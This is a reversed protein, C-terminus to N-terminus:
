VISTLLGDALCSSFLKKTFILCNEPRPDFISQKNFFIHVFKKGYNFFSTFVIKRLVNVVSSLYERLLSFKWCGIWICGDLFRFVKELNKM